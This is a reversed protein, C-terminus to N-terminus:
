RFTHESRDIRVLKVNDQDIEVVRAIRGGATFAEVQECSDACHIRRQGDHDHGGPAADIKCDFCHAAARAVKNLLWPVVRTQECDQTRLDFEGFCQATATTQFGLVDRQAVTNGLSM